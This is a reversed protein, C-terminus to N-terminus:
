AYGNPCFPAEGHDDRGWCWIQHSDHYACTHYGGASVWLWGEQPAGEPPTAQGYQGSGWCALQGAGYLGCAHYRGVSVDWWTNPLDLASVALDLSATFGWCAVSGLSTIACTQDHGASVVSWDGQNPGIEPVNVQGNGGGGWCLLEGSERLGCNHFGGTDWSHWDNIPMGSDTPVDHQGNLQNGWCRIVGSTTEPWSRCRGRSRWRLARSSQDGDEALPLSPATGRGDYNLGWCLVEGSAVGCTHNMGASVSTWDRRMQGSMMSPVDSVQGSM